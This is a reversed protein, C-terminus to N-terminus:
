TQEYRLLFTMGLPTSSDTLGIDIALDRFNPNITGILFEKKRRNWRKLQKERNLADHVYSAVEYYVLKHCKYKKSFSDILGNKHEYVRRLLDSTVGIYLVGSISSM